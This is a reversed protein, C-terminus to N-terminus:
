MGPQAQEQSRKNQVALRLIKEKLQTFTSFWNAASQLVPHDHQVRPDRGPLALLLGLHSHLRSITAHAPPLFEAIQGQCAQRRQVEGGVNGRSCVREWPVKGDIHKLWRLFEGTLPAALKCQAIVRTTPNPWPGPCCLIAQDHRSPHLQVHTVATGGGGIGIPRM